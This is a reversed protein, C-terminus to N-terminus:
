AAEKVKSIQQLLAKEKVAQFYIALPRYLIHALKGFPIEIILMPTVIVMHIFYAFHATLPFDMYRFIHMAIGSLSTLLIMVPLMWDGTDSFRHMQERKSFRGAIIDLSGYLLAAAALYGLWRQPHYLPYIKDTQFWKLFFLVLISILVFGSFLILHKTWRPRNDCEQFKKQTFGHTFLTGLEGAYLSLPMNNRGGGMVLSHMRLANATLLAAPILFVAITYYTIISFMHEMGKPMEIFDSMNLKVWYLHYFLLLLIVLLGAAMNAGIRWAASTYLKSALGTLDYQSTLYRRLTMMAEAPEAQRPCTEACDGCYYCLWPEISNLLSKKLGFHVYRITRRPFSALDNSLSCTVTCSGCNYCAGVDFKGYKRVDHILCPDIKISEMNM